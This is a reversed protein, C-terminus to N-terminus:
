IVADDEGTFHKKFITERFMLIRSGKANFKHTIVPIPDEEDPIVISEAEGMYKIVETKIKELENDLDKKVKQVQKLKAMIENRRKFMDIVEDNINEQKGNVVTRYQAKYDNFSIPEPVEGTKVKHMFADDAAFMLAASEYDVPEIPAQHYTDDLMYIIQVFVKPPKEFYHKLLAQIIAGNKHTQLRYEEPIGEDFKRVGWYGSATKAEIVVLGDDCTSFADPTGGSHKYIPHVFLRHGNAHIERKNRIMYEELLIPELARGRKMSINDVKPYGELKRTFLEYPTYRDSVGLLNPTETASVVKQHEELWEKESPEPFNTLLWGIYNEKRM